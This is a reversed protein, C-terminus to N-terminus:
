EGVRVADVLEVGLVGVVLVSSRLTDSLVVILEAEIVVVVVAIVVVVVVVVVWARSANPM